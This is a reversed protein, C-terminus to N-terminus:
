KRRAYIRYRDLNYSATRGMKGGTVKVLTARMGQHRLEKAERKMLSHDTSSKGTFAYGKKELRDERSEIGWPM